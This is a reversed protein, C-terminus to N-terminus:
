PSAPVSATTQIPLPSLRSYVDDIHQCILGPNLAYVEEAIEHLYRIASVAIQTGAPLHKLEDFGEM